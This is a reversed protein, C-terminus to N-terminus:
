QLKTEDFDDYTIIAKCVQVKGNKYYKFWIDGNEEGEGNLTFRVNPYQLSYNKMDIDHNYWKCSSEFPNYGIRKAIRNIHHFPVDDDSDLEYTTYYGM